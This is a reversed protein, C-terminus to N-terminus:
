LILQSHPSMVATPWRGPLAQIESFLEAQPFAARRLGDCLPPPRSEQADSFVGREKMSFGQILREEIGVDDTM